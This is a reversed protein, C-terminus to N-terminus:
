GWDTHRANFDGSIIIPQAYQIAKRIVKCICNWAKNNISNTTPHRYINGILIPGTTPLSTEIIIIASPSTSSQYQLSNYFKIPLSNHILFALGGSKSKHAFSHFNYNPISPSFLNNKLHTESLLMISPSFTNIYHNIELIKSADNILSHCNWQIIVPNPM